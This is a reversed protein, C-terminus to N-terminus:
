RSDNDCTLPYRKNKPSPTLNRNVAAADPNVATPSQQLAADGSVRLFGVDIFGAGTEPM